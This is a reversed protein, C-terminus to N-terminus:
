ILLGDGDLCTFSLSSAKNRPERMLLVQEGVTAIGNYYQVGVIKTLMHGYHEWDEGFEGETDQSLDIVDHAGADDDSDYNLQTSAGPNSPRKNRKSVPISSTPADDDDDPIEIYAPTKRKASVSPPYTARSLAYTSRSSPPSSADISRSSSPTTPYPQSSPGAHSHPPRSM